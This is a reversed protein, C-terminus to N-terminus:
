KYKRKKDADVCIRKSGYKKMDYQKNVIFAFDCKVRGDKYEVIRETISVYPGVVFSFSIFRFNYKEATRKNRAEQMAEKLNM